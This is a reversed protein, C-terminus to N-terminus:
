TMNACNWIYYCPTSYQGAITFYNSYVGFNERNPIKRIEQGNLKAITM